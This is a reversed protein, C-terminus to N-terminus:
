WCSSQDYHMRSLVDASSAFDASFAFEFASCRTASTQQYFIAATVTMVICHQGARSEVGYQETGAASASDPGTLQVAISTGVAGLM